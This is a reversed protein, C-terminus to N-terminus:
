QWSLVSSLIQYLYIYADFLLGLPDISQLKFKHGPFCHWNGFFNQRKQCDKKFSM